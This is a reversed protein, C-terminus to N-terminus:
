WGVNGPANSDVGVSIPVVVPATLKQKMKQSKMMSKNLCSNSCAGGWAAIGVMAWRDERLFFGFLQRVENRGSFAVNKGVKCDM